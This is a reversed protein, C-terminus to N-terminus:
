FKGEIISELWALDEITYPRIKEPEGPEELNYYLLRNPKDIRAADPGDLIQVSEQESMVGAIRFSIDNIVRRDISRQLNGVTDCWILLHVGLEPGERLINMLYDVPSKEEKQRWDLYSNSSTRLERIRQLGFILLYNDIEVQKEEEIALHLLNNLSELLYPLDKRDVIKIENPFLSEIKKPLYSWETGPTSFDAIYINLYGPPYQAFLSIVSSMLINMADREERTVVLLHSGSRRAFRVSISPSVSISEGIWCNVENPLKNPRNKLCEILPICSEIRPLENGTFIIPKEKFDMQESLNTIIDLYKQRDEDGFLAVQFDSNGEILGNASNYIAQGPHILRRAAPNDEALVLRSDAESCQLAIRVAMQDTTARSLSYGALSQSGLLVHIGFARGQRVLRDLILRAESSIQDDQEFLVQFEDILLLIRPIKKNTKERYEAIDNAVYRFKEMRDLMEKNVKRLIALAFERDADVALVKVHPVDKYAVFEVSKLDILYLNLEEPSYKLISATIIVHMLNSKGSGPRGVILGHHLTGKGLVLLQPEHVTKLGIPIEIGDQTSGKWWHENDLEGIQLLKGFPVEIRMSSKAKKGWEDIIQKRINEDPPKDFAIGYDVYKLKLGYFPNWDSEPIRSVLENLNFKYPFEKSSNVMIVPFVGVRVGTEAISILDRITDDYFNVPFDFVLLIKYPVAIEGAKQNYTTIDPYQDRLKEQIVISIHEKINALQKRIHEPEFWARNTVLSDDDSEDYKKLYLLAAASNGLGIPDIITFRLKGPPISALLRFAFSQWTNRLIELTDEKNEVMLFGKGGIFPILLPLTLVENNISPLPLKITIKFEGLRISYMPQSLPKWNNFEEWGKGWIGMEEYLNSVNIKWDELYKKLKDTIEKEFAQFSIKEREELETIRKNIETEFVNNFNNVSQRFLSYTNRVQYALNDCENLATDKKSKPLVNGFYYKILISIAVIFFFVGVSAYDHLIALLCIFTLFGMFNGLSKRENPMKDVEEKRSLYKHKINVLDNFISKISRKAKDIDDTSLKSLLESLKDYNEIFEYNLENIHTSWSEVRNACSLIDKIIIDKKRRLDEIFEKENKIIAQSQLKKNEIKKGADEIVNVLNKALYHVNEVWKRSLESLELSLEEFDKM